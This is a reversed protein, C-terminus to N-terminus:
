DKPREDFNIGPSTKLSNLTPTDDPSAPDRAPRKPLNVAGHPNITVTSNDKLFSQEVTSVYKDTVFTITAHPDQMFTRPLDIKVSSDDAFHAIAAECRNHFTAFVYVAKCALRMNNLTLNVQVHEEESPACIDQNILLSATKNSVHTADGIEINKDLMTLAARDSSSFLDEDTLTAFGDNWLVLLRNGKAYPNARFPNEFQHTSCPPITFYALDNLREVWAMEFLNPQEVVSQRTVLMVNIPYNKLNIIEHM